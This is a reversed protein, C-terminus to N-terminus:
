IVSKLGIGVKAVRALVMGVGSAVLLAGCWCALGTWTKDEGLIAGAIPISVLVGVGVFALTMGLRTGIKRKDASLNVVGTALLGM